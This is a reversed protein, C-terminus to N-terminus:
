SAHPPSPSGLQTAPIGWLLLNDPDLLCGTRTQGGRVMVGELFVPPGRRSTGRGGGSAAVGPASVARHSLQWDRAHNRSHQSIRSKRLKLLNGFIDGGLASPHQLASAQSLHPSTWTKEM